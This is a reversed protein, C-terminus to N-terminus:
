ALLKALVAKQAHLRNEAQTFLRSQSGDAVEDTIELGRHAPLCHLVITHNPAKALLAQNVQFNAFDKKRQEFEDEQGMSAWTDTYVVDADRIAEDINHTIAVADESSLKRAQTMDKEPLEYGEPCALTFKAGLKTALIMTSHAVNNGDGVFVIHKGKLSGFEEIITLGDAMAQAPHNFDSLGNIVPVASYKALDLIHQHDFVRAMIGDVYSSLVRAIDAISERQGLGIESPGIYIAHGGLQEMGVEFSVRTRLSPKQFIMALNKGALLDTHTKGSKLETKIQAAKDLLESIEDASFDQLDLFHSM